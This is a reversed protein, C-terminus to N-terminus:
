TQWSTEGTRINRGAHLRLVFIAGHPKNPRFSLTANMSKALESGIALGLGTGDTARTVSNDARWFREFIHRADDPPIGPGEDAIRIEANDQEVRMSLSVKSGPAYKAANELISDIIRRLADRDAMVRVPGDSHISPPQSFQPAFAEAADRIAPLADFEEINALRAGREVRAFELLGDILRGLRRSERNITLAAKGTQEADLAGGALMESFMAISTLPTKLEHSVNSLFDTKARADSRARREARVLLAIGASLTAFLLMLLISIFTAQTRVGMAVSSDGDAPAVHVFYNPLSPKLPASGFIQGDIRGNKGNAIVAGCGHRVEVACPDDQTNEAIATVIASITARPLDHFPCGEGDQHNGRKRRHPRRGGGRPPKPPRADRYECGNSKLSASIATALRAAKEDLSAIAMTRVSSCELSILRIGGAVLLIAPLVVIALYIRIDRNM